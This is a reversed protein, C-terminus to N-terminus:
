GIEYKMTNNDSNYSSNSARKNKSEKRNNLIKFKHIKTFNDVKNRSIYSTKHNSEINNSKVKFSHKLNINDVYNRLNYDSKEKSGNSSNILEIEQETTDNDVNSVVKSNKSKRKSTHQEIELEMMNYDLYNSSTYTRKNKPDIRRNIIEFEHETKNNNLKTRSM